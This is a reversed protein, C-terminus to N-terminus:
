NHKLGFDYNIANTNAPLLINLIASQAPPVAPPVTAPTGGVSGPSATFFSYGSSLATETVNYTGAALNSFIYADKTTVQTATFAGSLLVSVGALCPETGTLPM